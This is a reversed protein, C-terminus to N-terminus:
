RRIAHILQNVHKSWRSIRSNVARTPLMMQEVPIRELQEASLDGRRILDTLFKVHPEALDREGIMWEVIAMIAIPSVLEPPAPSSRHTLMNNINRLAQGKLELLQVSLRMPPDVSHLARLYGGFTTLKYFLFSTVLRPDDMAEM